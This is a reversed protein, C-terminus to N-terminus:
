KELKSNNMSKMEMQNSSDLKIKYGYLLDISEKKEDDKEIEDTFEQKDGRKQINKKTNKNLSCFNCELIELYFLASLIVLIYLFLCIWKNQNNSNIIIKAMGIIENCVIIHNPTLYNVTLISLVHLFAGYFIFYLFELFIWIIKTNTFYANFTSIVSDIGKIKDIIAWISTFSVITIIDSIANILVIKYYHYYLNFMMYKIYCFYIVDEIVYIIDVYLYKYEISFYNNLLFDIIVGLICFAVISIIHHIYYNYKLLFITILTTFIIESTYISNLVDWNSLSYYNLINSYVFGLGHYLCDLLFLFFIHLFKKNTKKTKTRKNKSYRSLLFASLIGGFANEITFIISNYADDPIFGTIINNIIESILYILLILITKDILGFSIIFKEMKM